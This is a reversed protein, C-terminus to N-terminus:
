FKVDVLVIVEVDAKDVSLIVPMIKPIHAVTPLM